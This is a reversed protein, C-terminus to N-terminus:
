VVEPKSMKNIQSCVHMQIIIVFSESMKTYIDHWFIKLFDESTCNIEISFFFSLHTFRFISVTVLNLVYFRETNRFDTDLELPDTKVTLDEQVM